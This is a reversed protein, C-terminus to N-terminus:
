EEDGMDGTLFQVADEGLVDTYILYALHLGICMGSEIGGAAGVAVIHGGPLIGESALEHAADYALRQVEFGHVTRGFGQEVIGVEGAEALQMGIYLGVVAEIDFPTNIPKIM